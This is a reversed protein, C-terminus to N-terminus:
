YRLAISLGNEEFSVAPLNLINEEPFLKRLIKDGSRIYLQRVFDLKSSESIKLTNQIEEISIKPNTTLMNPTSNIIFKKNNIELDKLFDIFANIVLKIEEKKLNRFKKKADEM